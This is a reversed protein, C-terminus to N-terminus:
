EIKNQSKKCVVCVPFPRRWREKGDHAEEEGENEDDEEEDDAADEEPLAVVLVAAM